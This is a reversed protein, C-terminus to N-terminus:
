SGAELDRDGLMGKWGCDPCEVLARLQDHPDADPQYNFGVTRCVPCCSQINLRQVIKTYALPKEWDRANAYKVRAASLSIEILERPGGGHLHGQPYTLEWFKGTAPDAYLTNWGSQDSGLKQMGFLAVEIESESAIKTTM